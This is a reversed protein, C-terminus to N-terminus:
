FEGITQRVKEVAANFEAGMILICSTLYLWIMLVIVAGLAGYIVTYDAFNEVYFSFGFSVALWAFLAGFVGPLVKKASQKKDQSLAYLGGTALVMLVGAPVFRIYQWLGPLFDSSIFSDDPMHSTIIVLFREGIVSLLLVLVIVVLFVVTYVLQRVRYILKNEPEGLGLSLRVDEMLGKVARFPFWISFVLSFWLLTKGSNSSVYDLYSVAIDVIDGPLFQHMTNMVDSIDLRLMGILNSVFILLPFLAFLLYYALAAANKAVRHEFFSKVLLVAIEKVERSKKGREM